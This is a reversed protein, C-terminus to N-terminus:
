VNNDNTNPGLKVLAVEMATENSKAARINRALLNAQTTM